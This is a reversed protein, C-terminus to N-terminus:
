RESRGRRAILALGGGVLVVGAGTFLMTGMGGTTPLEFGQTNPVTVEAVNTNNVGNDLKGDNNDDALKVEFTKGVGNYGEPAKTEKLTYTGAGLGSISIKGDADTDLTTTAGAAGAEAVTYVGNAGTFAIATGEAKAGRYLEFQAGTLKKDKNAADVKYVNVGFSYVKEESPEVNWSSGDFPNNSYELKATNTNGDVDIKIKSNITGNYEVRVSKYQRVKDADLKVLFSVNDGSHNAVQKDATTVDLTYQDGATLTDAKADSVVGYVKISAADLTIGEPLADSIWFNKAVANAPYVPVDSVLKFGVTDGVQLGVVQDPKSFDKEIGPTTSKVDVTKDSVVGKDDMNFGVTRYVNKTGVTVMLYSGGALKASATNAGTVTAAVDLQLPDSARKVASALADYFATVEDAGAKAFAQVDNFKGNEYGAVFDKVKANWSYGTFNGDADYNADVVKYVTSVAGAEVTGGVTLTGETAGAALAPVAIGLALAVTAVLTAIRALVGRRTQM